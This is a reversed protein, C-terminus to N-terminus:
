QFFCIVASNKKRRRNYFQVLIVDYHPTILVKRDSFRWWFDELFGGSNRWFEPQFFASSRPIRKEEDITVNYLFSMMILRSLYKVIPFADFFIHLKVRGDDHKEWKATAIKRVIPRSKKKFCMIKEFWLPFFVVIPMNFQM